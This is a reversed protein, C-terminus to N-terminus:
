VSWLGGRIIEDISIIEKEIIDNKIINKNLPMKITIITGPFASKMESCYVENNDEKWYGRGSIVWLCGNFARLFNRTTYFGLGGSEESTRTSSSRKVAWMIANIDKDFIYHNKKEINKSITIGHNAITFYLEKKEPLYYGCTMVERSKTHMKVNIFMESVIRILEKADYELYNSSIFASLEDLLYEEFKDKEKVKFTEYSIFTSEYNCSNEIQIKSLFKNNSLVRLIRTPVNRFCIYNKRLKIKELVLGLPSCLNSDIWKTNELDLAIKTNTRNKISHWLNSLFIIAKENNKLKRPFNIIVEGIKVM